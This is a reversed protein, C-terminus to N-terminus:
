RTRCWRTSMWHTSSCRAKKFLLRLRRIVEGARRDDGAIDQLISRVENLDLKEPTMFEQAAEANILIATLPQNLEHCHGAFSAL